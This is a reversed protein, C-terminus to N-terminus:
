KLIKFKLMLYKIDQKLCDKRYLKYVLKNFNINKDIGDFFIENSNKKEMPGILQRNNEVAIKKDMPKIEIESNRLLLEGKDSQVMILSIGKAIESKELESGYADGLSIDGVRETSAYKCSYCNNTLDLGKVFALSYKDSVGKRILSINDLVIQYKGKIRFKIDKTDVLKKSYQKLFTDLLKPSPTGHCILDVLMLNETYREGFYSKAAAVQCPLGIFLVKNGSKLLDSMKGYIGIPNSKVYKSGTFNFVAEKDNTIDFVFQGARYLCSCVYGDEEIFQKALAMGIGGSPANERIKEDVCWGQYWHKTEVMEPTNNQPCKNHCANCNICKEEDIVANYARMSDEIHIAEKKCVELCLMCGACKDIDCVTM